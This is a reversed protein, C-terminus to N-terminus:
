WLGKSLLYGIIAYGALDKWTDEIAENNVKDANQLNTLRALKDDMRVLVGLTGHRKINDAGYDQDKKVLLEAIQGAVQRIMIQRSSLALRQDIREWKILKRLKNTADETANPDFIGFEKDDNM